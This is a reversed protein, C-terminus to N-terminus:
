YACFAHRSDYEVGGENWAEALDGQELMAQRQRDRSANEAFSDSFYSMETYKRACCQIRLQTPPRSKKLLREFANYDLQRDHAARGGTCERRGDASVVLPHGTASSGAM